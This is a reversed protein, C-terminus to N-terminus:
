LRRTSLRSDTQFVKRFEPRQKTSQSRPSHAAAWRVEVARTAAAFRALRM